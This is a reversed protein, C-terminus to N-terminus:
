KQGPWNDRDVPVQVAFRRWWTTASPSHSDWAVIFQGVKPTIAEKSWCIDHSCDGTIVYTCFACLDALTVIEAQDFEPKTKQVLVLLNKKPHGTSPCNWMLTLLVKLDKVAQNADAPLKQWNCYTAPAESVSGLSSVLVQGLRTEHAKLHKRSLEMFKACRLEQLLEKITESVPLKMIDYFMVITYHGFLREEQDRRFEAEVERWSSICPRVSALDRDPIAQCLKDFWRKAAVIDSPSGRSPLVENDTTDCDSAM